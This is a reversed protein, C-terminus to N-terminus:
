IVGVGGPGLRPFAGRRVTRGPLAVPWVRRSGRRRRRSSAGGSGFGSGSESIWLGAGGGIPADPATGALPESDSVSRGANVDAVV